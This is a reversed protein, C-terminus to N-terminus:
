FQLRARLRLPGALALGYSVVCLLAGFAIHLSPQSRFLSHTAAWLLLICLSVILAPSFVSSYKGLVLSTVSRLRAIQFYYAIAMSILGALAAGTLGLRLVAPYILAVMLFARISAFLRHLGPRGIMFYLTVIPVSILQMVSSLFAIALPTAADSYRSGYIAHLLDRSYLAVFLCLPLGFIATVSTIKIMADNVRDHETQIASFAPGVVQGLLHAGLQFPMQALSMALTYQGLESASCLKAVVFVDVQMFIFTLIPLGAMGRTYRFLERLLSKDFEFGLRYPSLLYSFLCRAAAETTFGWVLAWAGDIFFALVIATAIGLIAGANQIVVWGRFDMQKLLVYSRPSMAGRFLISLLAIRLLPVLSPNSYFTALWPVAAFALLYLLGARVFSLWGVGNLYARDAGKPHQVVAHQIGIDTLSEFANNISLVIAVAGFAEPALLRALVINRILRFGRELGNGAGLWISGRAAKGKLGQSNRLLDLAELWM